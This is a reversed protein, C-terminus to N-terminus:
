NHCQLPKQCFGKGLPFSNCNIDMMLVIPTFFPRFTLDIKIPYSQFVGHPQEIRIQWALCSCKHFGRMLFTGFNVEHRNQPLTWRHYPKKLGTTLTKFSKEENCIVLGSLNSHKYRAIVKWDLIVNAPLVLLKGLFCRFPGGIPNARAKGEFELVQSSLTELHLGELRNRRTM